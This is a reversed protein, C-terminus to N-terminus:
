DIIGGKLKRAIFKSGKKIWNQPEMFKVKQEIYRIQNTEIWVDLLLESIFGFVRAEYQSYQSIDLQNEVRELIDFLWQSYSDFIESKAIFMNFMHASRRSMVKEFAELYNPYYTQIVQKTLVLGEIHHSHEYHSWMTEIYYKRKNPVIMDYQELLTEIQNTSLVQSMPEKNQIKNKGIFHRRYHVLGKISAQSNKWLSYQATLECYNPNKHAINDAENDLTYQYSMKKQNVISGVFYPTYISDKPFNYEKHSVVVVQNKSQKM